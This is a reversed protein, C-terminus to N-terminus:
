KANECLFETEWVDHGYYSSVSGYNGGGTYQQKITYTYLMCNGAKQKAVIAAQQTRCLIAGTLSNRVITWEKTLLNIKVITEGWGGNNFAEKFEAEIATNDTVAKPMFLNKLREKKRVAANGLLGNLGGSVTLFDAIMQQVEAADKIDPYLLKAANWYTAEGTIERFLARTGPESDDKALKTKYDLFLKKAAETRDKIYDHCNEIGAMHNTLINQLKNNYAELREAHKKEDEVANGSPRYETTTNAQFLGYCGEDTSHFGLAAIRANHKDTAAQKADFYPQLLAEMKSVDYNPDRKKIHEIQRKANDAIFKLKTLNNNEGVPVESKYDSIKNTTAPQAKANTGSEIKKIEEMYQNFKDIFPKLKANDAPQSFSVLCTLMATFLSVSKM